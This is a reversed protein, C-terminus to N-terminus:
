TLVFRSIALFEPIPISKKTTLDMAVHVQDISAFLIQDLKRRLTYRFRISSRGVGLIEVAIEIWDGYVIPVKFDAEAKVTPFGIQKENILTSYSVGCKEHFFREM